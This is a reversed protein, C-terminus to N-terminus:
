QYSKYRLCRHKRIPSTQSLTTQGHFPNCDESQSDNNKFFYFFFWLWSMYVAPFLWVWPQILLISVFPFCFYFFNSFIKASLHGMIKPSYTPNFCYFHGDVWFLRCVWYLGWLIEVCNKLSKSLTIKLKICFCLFRPSSLIEQVLMNQFLILSGFIFWFM